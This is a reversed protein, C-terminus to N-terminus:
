VVALVRASPFRRWCLAGIAGVAFFGTVIQLPWSWPWELLSARVLPAAEDSLLYVTLALAGVAGAAGLARRRFDERLSEDETEVTLYVAALFAFLVVSFLGVAFPFLGLWPRLFGSVVVGDQVRIGGTSIAGI